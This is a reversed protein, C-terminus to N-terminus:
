KRIIKKSVFDQITTPKKEAGIQGDIIKVENRFLNKCVRLTKISKKHTLNASTSTIPFNISNLLNLTSKVIPLRVAINQSGGRLWPPCRNSSPVLWTHPGPWKAMMEKREMASFDKM